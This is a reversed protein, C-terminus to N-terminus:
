RLARKDVWRLTRPNRSPVFVVEEREKDELNDQDKIGEDSSGGDSSDSDPEMDPWFDYM